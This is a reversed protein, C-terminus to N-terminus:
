NKQNKCLKRFRIINWKKKFFLSFLPIRVVQYAKITHLLGNSVEVIEGEKFFDLPKNISMPEQFLSIFYDKIQHKGEKTFTLEYDDIKVLIPYEDTPNIYEDTHNISVIIGKENNFLPSYVEQGVYFFQEKEKIEKPEALDLSEETWIYGCSLEYYVKKNNEIFFLSTITQETGIFQYMKKLFAYDDDEFFRPIVKDGIKFKM